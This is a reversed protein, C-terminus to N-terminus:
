RALPDNKADVKRQRLQDTLKGSEQRELEAWLEDNVRIDADIEARYAHYYALAESVDSLTLGRLRVRDRGPEPGGKHCLVTHKVTIRHGSIHPKGGCTGPTSVIHAQSLAKKAPEHSDTALEM